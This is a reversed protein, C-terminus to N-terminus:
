PRLSGLFGGLTEALAPDPLLFADHGHPSDLEVFSVQAGAAHLARVVRRSESTPYLWDSTFSALLFRTATGAFRAALAPGDGLDFYDM